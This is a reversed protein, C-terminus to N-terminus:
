SSILFGLMIKYPFPIKGILFDGCLFSSPKEASIYHIELKETKVTDILALVKKVFQTSVLETIEHGETQLQDIKVIELNYKSIDKEEIPSHFTKTGNIDYFLYYHYEPHKKDEVDGFWVERDEEPDFFCNEWVFNKLNKRYEPEYDYIRIRKYGIFEKHICTPELVSLLKEKQSYYEEKMVQCRDVNGYKDYAYRNGRYYQRYGREKDRYNKARKNVSYLCDLLMSETITKKKLNDTYEKPTRM